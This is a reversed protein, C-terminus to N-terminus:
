PVSTKLPKRRTRQSAYEFLVTSETTFSNPLGVGNDVRAAFMGKRWYEGPEQNVIRHLNGNYSFNIKNTKNYSWGPCLIRWAPKGANHCAHQGNLM